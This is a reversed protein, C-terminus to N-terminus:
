IMHKVQYNLDMVSVNKIANESQAMGVTAMAVAMWILITRKM